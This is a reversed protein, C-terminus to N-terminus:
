PPSLIAAPQPCAGENTSSSGSVGTGVTLGEHLTPIVSHVRRGM